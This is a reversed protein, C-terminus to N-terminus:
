EVRFTTVMGDLVHPRSTDPDIIFCLLAYTGPDLDFEQWATYGGSQLAAYGVYTFQAMLPEGATPTGSMMSNFEALIQEATVGDPIRQMIFHHAEETGTNTVEWIQPGAPVPDPSVIFAPDDTMELRVTPGTAGAIPSATDSGPTGMVPTGASGTVTLPMLTMIEESGQEMAYYSAAWVYEGPQLNVAFTVPVGVEFTNTGGLYGWDPQALDNRAAQLALDTAEDESLGAPPQMIDLYTSFEETPQLTILYSGAGLESPADVGDPGVTVVIEPFGLEQLKVDSFSVDMDQAVAAGAGSLVLATAVILLLALRGMIEV